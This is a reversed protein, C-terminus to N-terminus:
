KLFSTHYHKLSQDNCRQDIALTVRRSRMRSPLHGDVYEGRVARCYKRAHEYLWECGLGFSKLSSRLTVVPRSGSWMGGASLDGRVGVVIQVWDLEASLM